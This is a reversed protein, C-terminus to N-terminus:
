SGTKVGTVAQWTTGLRIEDFQVFSRPGDVSLLLQDLQLSSEFEPLSVVEFEPQVAADTLEAVTAPITDSPRFVYLSASDPESARAVIRLVFFRSPVGPLM